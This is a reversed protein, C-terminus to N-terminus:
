LASCCVAVRQLVSFLCRDIVRGLELLTCLVKEYQARQWGEDRAAVGRGVGARGTIGGGVLCSM